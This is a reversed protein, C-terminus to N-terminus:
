PRTTSCRIGLAAPLPGNSSPIRLHLKERGCVWIATMEQRVALRASANLACPSGSLLQVRLLEGPDLSRMTIYEAQIAVYTLMAFHITFWLDDLYVLVLWAIHEFVIICVFVSFYAFFYIFM